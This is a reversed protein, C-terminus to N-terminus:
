RASCGVALALQFVIVVALLVVAIGATIKVM